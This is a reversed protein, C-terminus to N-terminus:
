KGRDPFGQFPKVDEPSIKYRRFYGVREPNVIMKRGCGLTAVYRQLGPSLFEVGNANFVTTM